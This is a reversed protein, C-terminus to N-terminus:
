KNDHPQMLLPFPEEMLDHPGFRGPLLEDLLRARPPCSSSSSSTDGSGSQGFLFRVRDQPLCTVSLTSNLHPVEWELVRGPFWSSWEDLDPGSASPLLFTPMLSPFSGGASLSVKVSECEGGTGAGRLVAPLPRLSGCLCGAYGTGSSVCVCVLM